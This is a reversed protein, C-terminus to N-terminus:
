IETQLISIEYKNAISRQNNVYDINEQTRPPASHFNDGSINFSCPWEAAVEAPIAGSGCLPDCVVDGVILM